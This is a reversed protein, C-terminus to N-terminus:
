AKKLAKRQQRSLPAKPTNAYLAARRQAEQRERAKARATGEAPAPILRVMHRDSDYTLTALGMSTQMQHMLKTVELMPNHIKRENATAVILGTNREFMRLFAKAGETMAGTYVVENM